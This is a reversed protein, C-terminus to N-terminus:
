RDQRDELEPDDQRLKDLDKVLADVLALDAETLPAEEREVAFVLHSAFVDQPFAQELLHYARVSTFREPVFRIDDDQTQTDRRPAIAALDAAWCGSFASM